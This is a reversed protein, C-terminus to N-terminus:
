GIKRGILNATYNSFNFKWKSFAALKKNRILLFDLVIYFPRQRDLFLDSVLITLTCKKTYSFVRISNDYKQKINPISDTWLHLTRDVSLVHAEIPKKPKDYQLITIFVCYVVCNHVHFYNGRCHM